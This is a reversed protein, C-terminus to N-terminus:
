VALKKRALRVLADYTDCVTDAAAHIESVARAFRQPSDEHWDRPVSQLGERSTPFTNVALANLLAKGAKWFQNRAAELVPDLFEHEPGNRGYVFARIEHLYDLEFSGGFDNDRLFRISGNSPVTEMFDRLVKKDAEGQLYPQAAAPSLHHGEAVLTYLRSRANKVEGITYNKHQKTTSDYLSHHGLCMFALNDEGSNGRDQDLHAIQGLKETLDGSLHFCLVCRRASNALVATEVDRFTAKRLRKRVPRKSTAM